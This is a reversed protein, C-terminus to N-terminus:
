FIVCLLWNFLYAEWSSNEDEQFTKVIGSRGMVQIFTLAVRVHEESRVDMNVLRLRTSAEVRLRQAGESATDLCGAFVTFGIADLHRAVQVVSLM